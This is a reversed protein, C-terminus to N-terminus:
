LKNDNFIRKINEENDFLAPRLFPQARQKETGLEVYPAYEMRYYVVGLTEETHM